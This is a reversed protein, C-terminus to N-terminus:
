IYCDISARKGWTSGYGLSDNNYNNTIIIIPIKESAKPAWQPVILPHCDALDRQVCKMERRCAPECKRSSNSPHVLLLGSFVCCMASTHIKGAPAQHPAQTAVDGALGLKPSPQLSSQHCCSAFKLGGLFRLHRQLRLPWGSDPM